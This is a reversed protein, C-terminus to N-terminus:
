RVRDRHDRTVDKAVPPAAVPGVGLVIQFGQHLFEAGLLNRERDADDVHVPVDGFGAVGGIAPGAVGPVSLEEGIRVAENLPQVLLSQARREVQVRGPADMRVLLLVFAHCFPHADVRGGFLRDGEVDGIWMEHFAIELDQVMGILLIPDVEPPHVPLLARLALM